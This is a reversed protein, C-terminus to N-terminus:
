QRAATIRKAAKAYTKKVGGLYIMREQWLELKSQRVMIAAVGRGPKQWYRAVAQCKPCLDSRARESLPRKCIVVACVYM